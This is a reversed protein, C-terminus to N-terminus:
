KVALGLAVLYLPLTEHSIEASPSIYGAQVRPQEVGVPFYNRVRDLLGDDVREGSLIVRGLPVSVGSEFLTSLRYNVLMKLDVAFREEASEGSPDYAIPLFAIDVIRRQFIFCVSAETSSVDVLAILDGDQGAGFALFGKGLAVARPQFTLRQDDHHPGLQHRDVIEALHERRIIMGLYRYGGDLALYDFHFENESELLSQALEFHLRDELVGTFSGEIQIRKVMVLHDPVSLGVAGGEFLDRREGLSDLNGELRDIVVRGADERLSAMFLVQGRQDIGTHRDSM